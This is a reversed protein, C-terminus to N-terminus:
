KRADAPKTATKSEKPDSLYLPGKLGCAPLLSSLLLAVAITRLHIQHM